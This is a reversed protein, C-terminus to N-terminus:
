KTENLSQFIYSILRWSEDPQLQSLVEGIAHGSANVEVQLKWEPDPIALIPTTTILKKLKEFAGKKEQTWKWKKKDTLETLPKTVKAFGEIFQWYFNSITM